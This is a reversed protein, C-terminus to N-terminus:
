VWRSPQVRGGCFSPCDTGVMRGCPSAYVRLCVWRFLWWQSRYLKVDVYWGVQRCVGCPSACGTVVDDACENTLM